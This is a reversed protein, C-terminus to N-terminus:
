RAAPRRSAHAPRRRRAPLRDGRGDCVRQALEWLERLRRRDAARDARYGVLCGRAPQLGEAVPGGSLRQPRARLRAGFHPGRGLRACLSRRDRFRDLAVGRVARRRGRLRPRRGRLVPPQWVPHQRPEHREGRRDLLRRLPWSMLNAGGLEAVISPLLTATILVNMSHLLVGGLLVCLILVVRPALLARWGAETM